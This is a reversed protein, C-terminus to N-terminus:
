YRYYPGYQEALAPYREPLSLSDIYDNFGCRYATPDGERLIESPIFTIGAIIVEPHTEDIMNEYMTQDEENDLDYEKQTPEKITM